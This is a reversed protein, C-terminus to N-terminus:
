CKILYVKQGNITKVGELTHKYDKIISDTKSHDNNSFDSGMWAQSMM